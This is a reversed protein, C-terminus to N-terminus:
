RTPGLGTPEASFDLASLSLRQRWRPYDNVPKDLREAAAVLEVADRLSGPATESGSTALGRRAAEVEVRDPSCSFIEAALRVVEAISLRGGRSWASFARHVQFASDALQMAPRRAPTLLFSRALFWPPFLDGQTALLELLRSAGGRADFGFRPALAEGAAEIVDGAAAFHQAGAQALGMLRAESEVELDPLPSGDLADGVAARLNQLLEPSPLAGVASAASALLFRRRLAAVFAPAEPHLLQTVLWAALFSAPEREGGNSSPGIYWERFHSFLTTVVPNPQKGSDVADAPMAPQALRELTWEIASLADARKVGESEVRDFIEGVAEVGLHPALHQDALETLRPRSREIFPLAKVAALFSEGTSAPQRARSLVQELAQRVEVLALTQPRYDHEALAHLIAVEDDGELLGSKFLEFVRGVGVMGFPEMEVARLAGMSAAGVLLVSSDLAYLLEKHTVSPVSYYLGDLLILAAPRRGLARLVDGRQAPPWVECRELSARWRADPRAPLCPGAFVIVRPPRAESM